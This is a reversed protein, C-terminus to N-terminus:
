TAYTGDRKTTLNYPVCDANIKEAKKFLIFILSKFYLRISNVHWLVKEYVHLRLANITTSTPDHFDLKIFICNYM